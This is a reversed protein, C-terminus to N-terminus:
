SSHAEFHLCRQCLCIVSKCMLSVLHFQIIRKKFLFWRSCLRRKTTSQNSALVAKDGHLKGVDKNLCSWDGHRPFGSSFLFTWPSFFDWSQAGFIGVLNRVHAIVLSLIHETINLLLHRSKPNCISWSSSAPLDLDLCTKLKNRRIFICWWSTQIWFMGQSKTNLMSLWKFHLYETSRSGNACVVTELKYEM